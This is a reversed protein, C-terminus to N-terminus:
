PSRVLERRRQQGRVLFAEHRGTSGATSHGIGLPGMIGPWSGVAGYVTPRKGSIEVSYPIPDDYGDEKFKCPCSIVFHLAVMFVTVISVKV